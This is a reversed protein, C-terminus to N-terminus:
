IIGKDILLNIGVFIIFMAILIYAHIKKIRWSSVTLMLIFIFLYVLLLISSFFTQKLVEKEITMDSFFAAPFAILAFSICIDMTNSGIANSVAQQGRKRKFLYINSFIEAASSGGALLTLALFNVSLGAMVGLKETFFVMIYCLIGITIITIIFGVPIKSIWSIKSDPGPTLNAIKFFLDKKENYEDTAEVHDKKEGYKIIYFVYIIHYVGLLLLEWTAFYNDTYMFILLLIVAIAYVASSRMISKKNLQISKEPSYLMPFGIVITIQFIASGIITSLGVVPSITTSSVVMLPFVYLVAFNIMIEAASTGIAQITEGAVDDSMKTRKQIWDIWHMFKGDSIRGVLMITFYVILAYILFILIDM